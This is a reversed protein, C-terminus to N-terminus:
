ASAAKDKKPWIFYSFSWVFDIAVIVTWLRIVGFLASTRSEDGVFRIMGFLLLSGIAWALVHRLWAKAEHLAHARGTKPSPVPAPGGAFRHAFRVDAWKIMRHGFAVSVGIYVAALGHTFGAEAGSRLHVVTAVLLAVDVLPTCLLLVAGLKRRRLVYRSLLGAAVFLWFGIECAIILAAIM